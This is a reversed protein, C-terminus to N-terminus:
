AKSLLINNFRDIKLGWGKEVVVTTQDSEVLCPGSVKMGPKMKERRYIMADVFQGRKADYIPRDGKLAISADESGEASETIQYHPVLASVSLGLTSLMLPGSGPAGLDALKAQAEKAIAAIAEPSEFFNEECPILVEADGKGLFLQAKSTTAAADFGEGRMDRRAEAWMDALAPRIAQTDISTSFELGVRRYYVHGVDMLSSSFASSVASFPTMLTKSMGAAEAIGCAHLGGAGGYAIIMSNEGDANVSVRAVAKGMSAEVTQRIALAAEEVSMGLPKAIKTEIVGRAKEANLRMKGGLFYEPDLIGLVVNADTVTPEAGGLDFAAPGPLAGASQPGVKLAGNEVRAISGGGAGLALVAAMPLNCMFGEVDPRLSYSTQGGKVYGIDFSTGGMDTSIVADLGYLDGVAKAGYLGASPGSNYTNIARTKAVRAISGNNHCIFLTGRYQRQRLDEGAKYLLRSLKAHIYANLVASNLRELAGARPSVDSALFVPVSGLYDRPYEDKIIRRAARENAANLESNRLAIVIGRAGSDILAQAATLVADRSPAAAVEGRADIEENIEVVLGTEVLPRKDDEVAVPALEAMGKSVILGIKSGDRQIISNTGITNSFRIIDTDFLFDETKKGFAGAAAEICNLFCQTLDHPTTPVKVTRFDAGNAIFGDTFTGGTDIDVTYGM